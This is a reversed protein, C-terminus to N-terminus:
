VMEWEPRHLTMFNKPGHRSQRSLFHRLVPKGRVLSSATTYPKFNVGVCSASCLSNKCEETKAM